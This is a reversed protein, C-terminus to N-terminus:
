RNLPQQLRAQDISHKLDSVDWDLNQLNQNLKFSEWSSESERRANDLSQSMAELQANDLSWQLMNDLREIELERSAEDYAQAPAEIRSVDNATLSPTVTSQAPPSPTLFHIGNNDRWWVATPAPTVKADGFENTRPATDPPTDSLEAVPPAKPQADKFTFTNPVAPKPAASDIVFGKPPPPTANPSPETVVQFPKSPDLRPPPANTKDISMARQVVTKPAFFYMSAFFIMGATTIGAFFWVVRSAKSNEPTM